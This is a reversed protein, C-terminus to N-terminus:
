NNRDIWRIIKRLVKEAEKTSIAFFERGRRENSWIKFGEEGAVIIKVGNNTARIGRGMAALMKGTWTLNVKTSRGSEGRQRRYNTSYPKFSRGDADIGRDTRDRISSAQEVGVAQWFAKSQPTKINLSKYKPTVKIM